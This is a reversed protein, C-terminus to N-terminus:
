TTNSTNKKTLTLSKSKLSKEVTKQGLLFIIKTWPKNGRQM